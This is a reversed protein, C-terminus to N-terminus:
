DVTVITPRSTGKREICEITLTVTLASNNQQHVALREGVFLNDDIIGGYGAGGVMLYKVFLFGYFNSDRKVRSM